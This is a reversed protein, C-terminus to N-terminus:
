IVSVATRDGRIRVQGPPLSPVSQGPQGPVRADAPSHRAPRKEARVEAINVHPPRNATWVIEEAIDEGTLPELGEYVKDAASKDGRFRTISFETEVMGPQINSVRIPTDVLEKMLASTFAHVAFKTACYRM